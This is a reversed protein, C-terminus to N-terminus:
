DPERKIAAVKELIQGPTLPPQGPHPRFCALSEEPEQKVWGPGARGQAEAGLLQGRREKGATTEEGLGFAQAEGGSRQLMYYLIPNAKTLWPPEHHGASRQPQPLRASGPYRALEVSVPSEKGGMKVEYFQGHTPAPALPKPHHHHHHQHNSERAPVGNQLGRHQSLVKIGNESLLLQKLVNFGPADKLYGRHEPEPARGNGNGNGNSGAAPESMGNPCFSHGNLTRGPKKQVDRREPPSAPLLHRIRTMPCPHHSPAPPSEVAGSLYAESPSASHRLLLQSLVGGGRHASHASHASHAPPSPPGPSEVELKVTERLCKANPFTDCDEDVPEIKVKVEAITQAYPGGRRGQAAAAQAQEKEPHRLLLQLVSRRELLQALDPGGAREPGSQPFVLSDKAELPCPCPGSLRAEAEMQSPDPSKLTGTRALDHLLKSASFSFNSLRSDAAPTSPGAPPTPFVQKTYPPPPPPQEVVLHRAKAPEPAPGQQPRSKRLPEGPNPFLQPRRAAHPSRPPKRAPNTEAVPVPTPFPETLAPRRALTALRPAEGSPEPTGDGQTGDPHGLLLQLLTVKHHSKTEEEQEVKAVPVRLGPVKPNWSFLLSETMQELSGPHLTTPDCARPKTSLDMPTCTSRPSPDRGGNVGGGVEGEEKLPRRRPPPGGQGPPGWMHGNTAPLKPSNLLHMLLSSGGGGAVTGAASAPSAPSRQCRERPPTVAKGQAAGVQKKCAIAALRQSASPALSRARSYQQLQCDSSLLLALQSCAASPKPSSPAGPGPAPLTGKGVMSAVAKLRASCSLRPSHAGASPSNTRSGSRSSEGGGRADLLAGPRRCGGTEDGGQEPSSTPSEPTPAVGRGQLSSSFSQLLSALLTSHTPQLAPEPDSVRRRKHAGQWDESQLLRAKKLNPAPASRAERPPPSPAPPPLGRAPAAATAASSPATGEAESGARARGDCDSKDAPAGANAAAARRMLVSELYTLVVSDQHMDSSLDEGHTM